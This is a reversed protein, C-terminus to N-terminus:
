RRPPGVECHLQGAASRRARHQLVENVGNQVADRRKRRCAARRNAARVHPRSTLKSASVNAPGLHFVCGGHVLLTPRIGNIAAPRAPARGDRRSVGNPYAYQTIGGRHIYTRALGGEAARQRPIPRAQGAALLRVRRVPPVRCLCSPATFSNRLNSNENCIRTGTFGAEGARERAM